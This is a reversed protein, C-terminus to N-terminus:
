SDETAWTHFDLLIFTVSLPFVHFDFISEVADDVFGVLNVLHFHPLVVALSCFSADDLFHVLDFSIVLNALHTIGSLELPLWAHRVLIHSYLKESVLLPVEGAVELRARPLAVELDRTALSISRSHPVVIRPLLQNEVRDPMRMDIM